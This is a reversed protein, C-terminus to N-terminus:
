ARFDQPNLEYKKLLRYLTGRPLRAERAARSVDGLAARLLNALYEKEFVAMRQERLQFFGGRDAISRDGAHIVVEDPLDELSLVSHRIMTLARKLVNQLERVNGPWPYRSLVELVEPDVEMAVKEMKRAYQEFFHAVLLPIDERRERLPPLDIRAVNIRYYFDDRLRGDRMEAAPDRNSAAVVRVDVEIEEKGGVRRIKREQLVRLLKAQLRLPLGVVEDLFFTGQNAFELLGLSRTHAGTFAGREHGFFESELLDEPIAGCDVPVFPAKKRPSRQHISRAVLEKGTGTEGVILVDADTEAIRQIAEFVVQMAASKGVIEGFSYAREVQRQLLHKEERLRKEELLRRVTALLNDPLFPKTIYDAAGLKMSEVATEVTPFATLMLVALNPDHWRAIRLLEVGDVGPMCIDAILLDLSESSLREAARRSQSELLIETEPLKRLTDACVELMGEEDDVVLIRAKAM